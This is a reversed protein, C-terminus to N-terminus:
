PATPTTSTKTSTTRSHAASTSAASPKVSSTKPNAAPYSFTENAGFTNKAGPPSYAEIYTSNPGSVSSSDGTSGQVCTGNGWKLDYTRKWVLSQDLIMDATYFFRCDAAEYVFQLPTVSDDGERINNEFNVRGAYPESLRSLAHLVSSRSDAYPEFLTSQAPTAIAPIEFAFKGLDALTQVNAGKSGGVWQMPGYQKRGGVTIAHIGAQTKMMEAFVACTSGCLADSLIVIDDPDFTQPQPKTDNGFGYVPMGLSNIDSLNNRKVNTFNGGHTTVPGYFDSWTDYQSLVITLDAMVDYDKLPGLGQPPRDGDAMASTVVQGMANALGFAALNTGGYPIQGPFLQTFWDYGDAVLGGGNGRIDMILKSKGAANATALISRFVNQFEIDDRPSLDTCSVVVLDPQDPPFYGAISRDSAITVPTPYYLPPPLGLNTPVPTYSNELTAPPKFPHSGNRTPSFSTLPTTCRQFFSAGDTVGSLDCSTKAYNYMHRETGNAFTLLTDNGQYVSGSAFAGRGEIGGRVYSLLPVNTVVSNYNADPDHDWPNAAAFENLWSEVGVGNILAIPSPRYDSSNSAALAMVDLSDYVDPLILGDSSLSLLAGRRRWKFVDVLDPIWVFHFDYASVVLNYLDMQVDYESTYIGAKVDAQIADLSAMIDVAPYLYGPPPDKLYPLTGQFQFLVKMGDILDIDGTVDVPVSQLCAMALDADFMSVNHSALAGLLACPGLDLSSNGATSNQASVISSLSVFTVIIAGLTFSNGFKM